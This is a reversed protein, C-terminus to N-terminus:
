LAENLLNALRVGARKLRDVVVDSQAQEYDEAFDFHGNSNIYKTAPANTIELSENAWDLPTSRTWSRRKAATVQSRLEGAVTEWPKHMNQIIGTDWIAHLDTTRGLFKGKIQNGGRDEEHSIHLPQHVDGVFHVLFKLAMARHEEPADSRLVDIDHSIQAVVCSQPEKCDRDLEVAKAGVPVNVFHWSGTKPHGRRYDDAWNCTDAFEERTTISLLSKM